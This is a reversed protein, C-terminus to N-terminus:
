NLTIDKILLEVLDQRHGQKRKYNSKPKKRFVIIKPGRLTRVVQAKVKGGVQGPKDDAGEASWLADLELEEGTNLNLKEVIIKEGPTVLYQKGGTKLVAYM